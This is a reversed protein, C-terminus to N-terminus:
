YSTAKFNESSKMQYLDEAITSKFQLNGFVTYLKKAINAKILWPKRFLHYLLEANEVTILKEPLRHTRCYHTQNPNGYSGSSKAKLTEVQKDKLGMRIIEQELTQFNFGTVDLDFSKFEARTEGQVLDM